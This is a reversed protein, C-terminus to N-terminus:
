GVLVPAAERGPCLVQHVTVDAEGLSLGLPTLVREVVGDLVPGVPALVRGVAGAVDGLGLGLGLAQVKLDTRGLLSSVLGSAFQRSRITRSQQDRIAIDDFALPSFAQDAAQLDASGTVSVLGAVSLLPAPRVTLPTAFDNLRAKDVTGLRARAVGTRADIRVKRPTECRIDGLRAEASALEILVPAKIQALGAVANATRAELYLRAQATHIIPNGNDTVTLWPSIEPRQGIALWVDVEALGADAGLDLAVQRGAGAIEIVAGAIDLASVSADVGGKLAQPADAHLAILDGVRIDRGSAARVLANLAADAGQSADEVARLADGADVRSDLLADYDGAKVDAHTALSDAFTLLDVKADALARYDMVSLSIQSGTLGGLVQNAVGSDLRALRSGISFMAQPRALPVAAVGTRTLTVTDRGLLLRGFWLPAPGTATVRAANPSVNASATQFRDQPKVTPEDRYLGVTTVVAEVKANARATADGAASARDLDRAAALAGLDAASQLRRAHLAISGGDVVVAATLCALLGSIGGMIAVGGQRNSLFGSSNM